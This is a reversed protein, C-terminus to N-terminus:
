SVCITKQENELEKKLNEVLRDVYKMDPLNHHYPKEIQDMTRGRVLCFAIHKHRFEFQAKGLDCRLKFEADGLARRDPVNPKAAQKVFAILKEGLSPEPLKQNMARYYATQASKFATRHSRIAKVLEKLETKLNNITVSKM